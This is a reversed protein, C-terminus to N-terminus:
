KRLKSFDPKRKEVFASIAEATEPSKLCKKFVTAEAALRKPVPEADRRMLAKIELLTSRPKSALKEATNMATNHLEYSNCVANVLGMEKADKATFSEGLMLLEAAKQHGVLNPLLMSSAAEPVLGLNVFPLSLKAGDLVYVFDCHLLMTVGVGVALGNVEAVLPLKANTIAELFQLTPNNEATPPNDRFDKVDNGACFSDGEGTIVIVNVEPNNGADNIAKAMTAYMDMTLSNKKEPRNIKITLISDEVSTKVLNTM